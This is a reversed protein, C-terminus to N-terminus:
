SNCIARCLTHAEDTDVATKIADIWPAAAGALLRVGHRAGHKGTVVLSGDRLVCADYHRGSYILRTSVSM